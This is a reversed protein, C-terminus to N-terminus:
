FCQNSILYIMKKLTSSYSYRPFSYNAPDRNQWMYTRLAHKRPLLIETVLIIIYMYLTNVAQQLWNFTHFKLLKVCCFNPFLLTLLICFNQENKRLLSSVHRPRVHFAVIVVYYHNAVAPRTILCHGVSWQGGSSVLVATLPLCVVVVWYNLVCVGEWLYLLPHIAVFLRNM